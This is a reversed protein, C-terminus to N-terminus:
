ISKRAEMFLSDPKRVCGNKEIDLHYDYFNEIQSDYASCVEIDTFGTEALLKGLSYRDYMWNHIEGSKRIKGIQIEDPEQTKSAPAEIKGERIQNIMNLAESGTRAIVFDEAPMPNQSWYKMMQGGSENRVMQDMLELTIWEYCSKSYPDGNVAGQLHILYWKAIQELDPVVVRLIGNPKLVRYCERIFFEAKSRTFHELLHSHYVVDATESELPIGKKLDAQKVYPPKKRFDINIWDPHCCDGCGLNVYVTNIRASIKKLKNFQETYDNLVRADHKKRFHAYIDKHITINQPFRQAPKEALVTDFRSTTGCHVGTGDLGINRIHSATPYIYFGNNLYASLVWNLTWIDKRETILSNIAGPIDNGGIELDLNAALAKQCAHDINYEFKNWARKWTAWGWSGIRPMFYIDHPYDALISAPIPVTYGSIGFVRENNEYRNLCNCMFDYFYPGPLCDDELLIVTNDYQLVTNVATLISRALGLNEDHFCIAANTNKLFGKVAKRTEHVYPEDDANKPGDCFVYLKSINQGIIAQLVKMTHAPRKYCVIAVPPKM